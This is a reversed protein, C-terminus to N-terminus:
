KRRKVLTEQNYVALSHQARTCVVYFLYKDREKYDHNKRSYAIVGDFELGKAIYSPIIVIDSSVRLEGEDIVRIGKFRKKLENYLYEAEEKNKTILAIKKMGNDRMTNIDSILQNIVKEDEEDRLIVPISNNKRISCVNNIDLIKNTFDIIEESSRYTKTLEIYKGENNFVSNIEDLSDYKYYPNITQNIDGLITFSAKRFIKKLMQFQLLTYDQAEDIIVQKIGNGNPYGYLEFYLYMMPLLDEYKLIKEEKYSVLKSYITKISLDTDIASLIKSKINNGYKVYSIHHVSCVQETILDFREMLPFNDFRKLLSNLYHRSVNHDNIILSKTFLCGNNLENICEDLKTKFENSLKYKTNNFGDAEIKEERYFRNIFSSFSEINNFGKIFSNAFSSFTTQLVNEEGLEPLVNSIYESFVDNPSFILVNKSNLEKEKYLLYAIRHLAVSTKGSGAIGQVILYKDKINRIIENQEIQITNVINTMKESSSQSLIEQLYDDDINLSSDFCRELKGNTIKYQRKLTTEGEILGIPAEYSSPGVGYNYFLSGVPSRWDFVYFEMDDEIPNIGIYVKESNDKTKFDVRGFYPNDLSRKFKHLRRINNNTDDVSTNVNYMGTAIEVEDLIGNNEWIYRKMEDISSMKDQISADSEDILTKIVKLTKKLYKKEEDLQEKSINM